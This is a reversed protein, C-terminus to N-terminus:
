GKSAIWDFGRTPLFRKAIGMFWTPTTVYYRPKPRRAELARILKRTVAEPQLEFRDPPLDEGYLRPELVKGYFGAWASASKDVWKEYHPRANVRIMTDIPGPEILVVHIPQNRLELRLVDTYGELAFKTAVYAARMRLATFGLVSSCQIVRGHGQARMAPLLRRTLTHWGFFNAEFIARLADTPLDEAAGPVAYAGNNFLADLKGGTRALAEEAGALVSAEDEYDIRFSELGEGRLRECDLEKRCCAFVRWRRAKLAHAAHHGIGSSCGTILISRDAM